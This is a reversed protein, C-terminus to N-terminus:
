FWRQGIKRLDDRVGGNIKEGWKPLNQLDTGGHIRALAASIKIMM